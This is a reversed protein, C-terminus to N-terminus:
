FYFNCRLSTIIRFLRAHSALLIVAVKDNKIATANYIVILIISSCQFLVFIFKTRAIVIILILKNSSHQESNRLEPHGLGPLMLQALPVVVHALVGGDTRTLM